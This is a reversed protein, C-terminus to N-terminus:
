QSAGPPHPVWNPDGPQPQQPASNASPASSSPAADPLPGDPGGNTQTAFEATIERIEARTSEITAAALQVAAVGDKEVQPLGATAKDMAAVINNIARDHAAKFRAKADRIEGAMPAGPRTHHILNHVRRLAAIGTALRDLDRQLRPKPAYASVRPPQM